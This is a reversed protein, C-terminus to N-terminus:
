SAAISLFEQMARSIYKGHKYYFYNDRKAHPSGIKYFVMRPNPIVRKALTDSALTVGMVHCAMHYATALQDLELIVRPSIGSDSCIKDIRTRTDNGYRLMIWPADAFLKLPVAPTAPDLHRGESIDAATLQYDRAAENLDLDIPASLLLYESYFFHKKYIGDDLDCNDVILDLDGSFLQRELHVTDAEVLDITVKPYKSQFRAIIPPLIYSSFFNSAGISLSGTRLEDLNNLYNEFGSEIDMIEEVCKVYEAGCDTLRIPNSSRDFLPSGVRSEVKKIMASLSPQAIFLKDAAKSFSRERYVEYVYRMNHFM